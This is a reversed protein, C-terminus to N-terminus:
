KKEGYNKKTYDFAQKITTLISNKISTTISYFGKKM